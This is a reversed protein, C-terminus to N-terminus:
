DVFNLTGWGLSLLECDKVLDSRNSKLLGSLKLGPGPEYSSLGILEGLLMCM